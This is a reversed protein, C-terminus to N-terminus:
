RYLKLVKELLEKHTNGGVVDLDIRRGLIEDAEPTGLDGLSKAALCRDQWSTKPSAYIRELLPLQAVAGLTGLSSIAAARMYEQDDSALKAVTDIAKPNNGFGLSYVQLYTDETREGQLRGIQADVSADSVRYGYLANAIKSASEQIAGSLPEELLHGGHIIGGRLVVAGIRRLGHETELDGSMFVIFFIPTYPSTKQVYVHFDRLLLHPSGREERTITLPLGRSRLEAQLNTSFYYMPDFSTAALSYPLSADNQEFFPEPGLHDVLSITIPLPQATLEYALHSPAPDHM